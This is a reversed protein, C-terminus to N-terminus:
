DGKEHAVADGFYVMGMFSMPLVFGAVLSEARRLAVLKSRKRATVADFDV